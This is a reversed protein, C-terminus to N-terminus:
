FILYGRRAAGTWASSLYHLGECQVRAHVPACVGCVRPMARVEGDTPEDVRRQARMGARRGTEAPTGPARGEGGSYVRVAWSDRAGRCERCGRGSRRGQDGRLPRDRPRRAESWRGPAGVETRESQSTPRRRGRGQARRSRQTKARVDGECLTEGSAGQLMRRGAGETGKADKTASLRQSDRMQRATSQGGGARQRTIFEAVAPVSTLESRESGPCPPM